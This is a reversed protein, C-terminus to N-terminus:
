CCTQTLVCQLYGLHNLNFIVCKHARIQWNQHVSKKEAWLKEINVVSDAYVRINRQSIKKSNQVFVSWFIWLKVFLRFTKILFLFRPLGKGYLTEFEVLLIHLLLLLPIQPGKEFIVSQRKIHIQTHAHERARAQTYPNAHTNIQHRDWLLAM